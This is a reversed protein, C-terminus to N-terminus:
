VLCGSQLIQARLWQVTSQHGQALGEKQVEPGRQLIPPSHPNSDLIEKGRVTRTSQPVLFVTVHQETGLTLGLQPLLSGKVEKKEQVGSLLLVFPPHQGKVYQM